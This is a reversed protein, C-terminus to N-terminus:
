HHENINVPELLDIVGVTVIGAIFHQNLERASQPIRHTVGIHDPTSTSLLEEDEGRLRPEVLGFLQGFPAPIPNTLCREGANPRDGRTEADRGQRLRIIAPREQAPRVQGQVGGLRLPAVPDHSDVPHVAGSFQGGQVLGHGIACTGSFSPSWWPQLLSSGTSAM